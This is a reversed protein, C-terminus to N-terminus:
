FGLEALTLMQVLGADYAFSYAPDRHILLRATARIQWFAENFDTSWNIQALDLLCQDGQATVVHKGTKYFVLQSRQQTIPDVHVLSCHIVRFQVFQYRLLAFREGCRSPKNKQIRRPMLISRVPATTTNM